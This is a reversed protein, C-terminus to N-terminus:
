ATATANRSSAGCMASPATTSCSRRGASHPAADRDGNRQRHVHLRRRRLDVVVPVDRAPTRRASRPPLAGASITRIAPRSSPARSTSRSPWGRPLSRDAHSDDVFIGDEPLEARIAELYAIQPALKELRKRWAAQREQMEAKRSPRKANHAPLEALLSQLIPKADGTLAVAPKHLRDHEKPDADIRVIKLDRDVGWQRFQILLRTGVRSCWTPRAGSIAASRCRSALRIAATSCAAAAAIASCRRRCCAGLARHSGRLM